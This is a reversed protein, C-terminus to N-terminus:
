RRQRLGKGSLDTAQAAEEDPQEVRPPLDTSRRRTVTGNESGFATNPVLLVSFGPDNRMRGNIGFGMPRFGAPVSPHVTPLKMQRYRDGGNPQRQGSYEGRRVRVVALDGRM